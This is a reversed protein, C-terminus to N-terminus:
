KHCQGECVQHAGVTVVTEFIGIIGRQRAAAVTAAEIAKFAEVESGFQSVLGGLNHRSNGFIHKLKNADIVRGVISGAAIYGVDAVRDRVFQRSISDYRGAM